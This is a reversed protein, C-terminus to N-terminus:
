RDFVFNYIIRFEHFNTGLIHAVRDKLYDHYKKMEEHGSEGKMCEVLNGSLKIAQLFLQAANKYKDEAISNKIRLNDLEIAEKVQSEAEECIQVIREQMPTQDEEVAEIETDYVPYAQPLPFMSLSQEPWVSPRNIIDTQLPPASPEVAQSSAPSSIIPETMSVIEGEVLTYPAPEGRVKRILSRGRSEYQDIKQELLQKKDQDERRSSSQQNQLYSKMLNCAQFYHVAAAKLKEHSPIREGQEELRIAQELLKFATDITSTMEGFSGLSAILM